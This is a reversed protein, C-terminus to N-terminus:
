SMVRIAADRTDNSGQGLGLLGSSNKGWAYLAGDETIFLCFEEHQWM